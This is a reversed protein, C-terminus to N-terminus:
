LAVGRKKNLGCTSDTSINSTGMTGSSVQQDLSNKLDCVDGGGKIGEGGGLFEGTEELKAHLSVMERDRLELTQRLRCENQLREMMERDKGVIGFKSEEHRKTVMDRSEMLDSLMKECNIQSVDANEQIM